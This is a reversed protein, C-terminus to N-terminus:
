SLQIHIWGEVLATAREAETPHATSGEAAARATMAAVVADLVDDSALSAEYVNAVDVWTSLGALIVRRQDVGGTGKYSQFPLGLMKLTAAPYVEVLPGSGDRPAAVGDWVENAWRSQLHACRMATAGLKDTSVSLPWIGTAAHVARDTERHRLLARNAGPPWGQGAGHAALAETFGRPWGFPADIGIVDVERALTVLLDDSVPEAIRHAVANGAADVEVIVVGTKKSETALDIGLAKM